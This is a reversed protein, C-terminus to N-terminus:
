ATYPDTGQINKYGYSILPTTIEGSGCALDL